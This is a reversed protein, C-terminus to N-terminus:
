IIVEDVEHIAHLNNFNDILCSPQMQSLPMTQQMIQQQGGCTPARGLM